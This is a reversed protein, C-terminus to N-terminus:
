KTNSVHSLNLPHSHGPCGGIYSDCLRLGPPVGQLHQGPLSYDSMVINSGRTYSDCLRLRSLNYNSLVVDSSQHKCLCLGPLVGHQLHQRSLSYDSLVINFGRFLRVNSLKLPPFWKLLFLWGERIPSTKQTSQTERQTAHISYSNPKQVVKIQQAEALGIQSLHIM